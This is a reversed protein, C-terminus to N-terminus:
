TSTTSASRSSTWAPYSPPPTPRPWEDASMCSSTRRATLAFGRATAGGCLSGGWPRGGHALPRTHCAHPMAVQGAVVPLTLRGDQGPRICSLGEFSLPCFM